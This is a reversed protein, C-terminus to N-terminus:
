PLEKNDRFVSPFKIASTDVLVSVRPRVISSFDAGGSLRVSLFIHGEFVGVGCPPGGYGQIGPVCVTVGRALELERQQNTRM